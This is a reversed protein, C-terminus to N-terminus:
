KLETTLNPLLAAAQEASFHYRIGLEARALILEPTTALMKLTITDGGRPTLTITAISPEDRYPTVEIAEAGQWSEVLATIADGDM